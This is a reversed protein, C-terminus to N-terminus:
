WGGPRTEAIAYPQRTMDDKQFYRLGVSLLDEHKVADMKAALTLPYDPGLGFLEARGWQFARSTNSTFLRLYSGVAHQKANRFDEGLEDGVLPVLAAKKFQRFMYRVGEEERTTGDTDMQAIIPSEDIAQSVISNASMVVGLPLVHKAFWGRPGSLLSNIVYFVTMDPSSARPGPFAITVSSRPGAGLEWKERFETTYAGEKPIPGPAFPRDPLSQLAREVWVKADAARVAGFVAIVINHRVIFTSRFAELDAQPISALNRRNGLGPLRYGSVQYRTPFILRQRQAEDDQLWGDLARMVSIRSADVTVTDLPAPALMAGLVGLAEEVSASPMSISYGWTDRDQYPLLRGLRTLAQRYTHGPHAPDDVNMLVERLLATIGNSADNEYRVGGLMYVGIAALPASWDEGVLLRTGGPLVVREVQGRGSEVPAPSIKALPADLRSRRDADTSATASPGSGYTATAMGLKERIRKDPDKSAGIAGLAGQPAMEHVVGQRLDLYKRAVAVLDEPKLARLRDPHVEDAGPRGQLFPIATARGLGEIEASPFLDRAIVTQVATKFEEPDIPASKVKEIEGLLVGEADLLREPPVRLSLTFVGGEREFARSASVDTFETAGEALRKQFRSTPSDVLLALLADLAIADATGGAPGRFGVTIGAGSADAPTKEVIVRPGTFSPPSYARTAAARGRPMGALARELRSALDQSDIDGTAVLLLNEAVYHARYFREVLPLTLGAIELEPVAYPAGLPTGGWLAARVANIAHGEPTLLAGRVARRAKAAGQDVFRADVTPRLLAEGLFEIARDLSRGPVTITYLTYGFGSESALTGGLSLMEKELEGERYKATTAFLQQALLGSVGREQQTEDRGGAKVWAQICVLPRTRVERTVLTIKNPLTRVLHPAALAPAALSLALLLSAPVLPRIRLRPRM